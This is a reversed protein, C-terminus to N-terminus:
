AGGPPITALAELRVTTSGPLNARLFTLKPPTGDLNGFLANFAAQTAARDRDTIIFAIIQTVDGPTAGAQGLLTRVNDFAIRAQAEPDAPTTGNATDTGVIRSSFLTDAVRVGMSMPDGHVLGPIELVQRRGNRMAFVQLRALEGPPLDV